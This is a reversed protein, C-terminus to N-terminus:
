RRNSRTVETHLLHFFMKSHEDSWSDEDSWYDHPQPRPQPHPALPDTQNTSLVRWTLTVHNDALISDVATPADVQMNFLVTGHGDTCLEFIMGEGEVYLGAKVWGGSELDIKRKAEKNEGGHGEDDRVNTSYRSVHFEKVKNGMKIANM